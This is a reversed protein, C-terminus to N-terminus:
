AKDSLNTEAVLFVDQKDTEDSFMIRFGASVRVRDRKILDKYINWTAVVTSVTAGWAALFETLKMTFPDGKHIGSTSRPSTFQLHASVAPWPPQERFRGAVVHRFVRM